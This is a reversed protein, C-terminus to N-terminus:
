TEWPSVPLVRQMGHFQGGSLGDRYAREPKPGPLLILTASDSPRRRPFAAAWHSPGRSESKCGRPTLLHSFHVGVPRAGACDVAPIQQSDGGPRCGDDGGGNCRGGRGRGLHLVLSEAARM